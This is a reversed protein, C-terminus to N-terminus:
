FVIKAEKDTKFAGTNCTRFLDESKWANVISNVDAESVDLTMLKKKLKHFLHSQSVDHVDQLDEIIIQIVSSSLLLKTWLKLYFLALNNLFLSEDAHEPSVDIQEEEEEASGQDNEEVHMNEAQQGSCEAQMSAWQWLEYLKFYKKCFM